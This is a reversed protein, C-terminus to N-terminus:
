VPSTDKLYDKNKSKRSEVAVWLGVITSGRAVMNARLNATLLRNGIIAQRDDDVDAENVAVGDADGAAADRKNDDM